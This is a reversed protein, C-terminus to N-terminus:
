DERARRLYNCLFLFDLAQVHSDYVSRRVEIGLRAAVCKKWVHVICM